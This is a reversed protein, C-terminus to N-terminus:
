KITAKVAESHILLYQSVMHPSDISGALNVRQGGKPTLSPDYFAANTNKSKIEKIIIKATLTFANPPLPFVIAALRSAKYYIGRARGQPDFKSLLTM